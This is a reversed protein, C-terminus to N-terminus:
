HNIWTCSFIALTKKVRRSLGQNESKM